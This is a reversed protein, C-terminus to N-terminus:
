IFTGSIWPMRGHRRVHSLRRTKDDRNVAEPVQRAGRNRCRRFGPTKIIYIYIYIRIYTDLLYNNM